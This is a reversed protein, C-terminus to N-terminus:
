LIFRGSNVTMLALKWVIQRMWVGHGNTICAIGALLVRLDCCLLLIIRHKFSLCDPMACVYASHSNRRSQICHSIDYVQKVEILRTKKQRNQYFLPNGWLRINSPDMRMQEYSISATCTKHTDSNRCFSGFDNRIFLLVAAASCRSLAWSLSLDVPSRRKIWRYLRRQTWELLRTVQQRLWDAATASSECCCYMTASLIGETSGVKSSKSAMFLRLAAFFFHSVSPFLLFGNRLHGGCASQKRHWHIPLSLFRRRNILRAIVTM